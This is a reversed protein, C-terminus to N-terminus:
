DRAYQPRAQRHSASGGTHGSRRVFCGTAVGRWGGPACGTLSSPPCCVACSHAGATLCPAQDQLHVECLEWMPQM